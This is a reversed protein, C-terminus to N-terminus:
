STIHWEYRCKIIDKLECDDYLYVTSNEEPKLCAYVPAIESLDAICEKPIICFDAIGHHYCEFVFTIALNMENIIQEKSPLFSNSCFIFNGNSDVYGIFCQINRNKNEQKNMYTEFDM